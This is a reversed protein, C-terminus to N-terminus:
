GGKKGAEPKRTAAKILLDGWQAADIRALSGGLHIAQTFASYGLEDKGAGLLGAKAMLEATKGQAGVQLDLSLAQDALSVGKACAIRGTGRLRLEPSVMELGAVNIVGDFGESATIKVSDYGVESVQYTLDLVAEAAPSLSTKGSDLVNKKTGVVAGVVSGVTALTNTVTSTPAEQLSDAVDAKLIRVIGSDSTLSFYERTRRALDGLNTGKGAFTRAVSFKGEFVPDVGPQPAPLLSAADEKTTAVSAKLVYPSESGADFEVSGAINTLSHGPPGGRGGELHISGHDLTLVGGVDALMGPDTRVHDLSVAVRGTWDGWFPASDRAGSALDPALPACLLRLHELAVSGGDLRLDIWPGGSDRGTSGELSLDSHSPGTSLRVPAKFSVAGSEDVDAHVTASVLSAPDHGEVEVTADVQTSAGVTASLSGSAKRGTLWALEPAARAAALAGLDADWTSTCVVAEGGGAPRRASGELTALRRGSSSVSLPAWKASWGRASFEGSLSLDMDVARVLDKGASRVTVGAASLQSTPRLQLIGGAQRVLFEGAADGGSIAVGGMFGSLWALPLGQVSADFLDGAPDSPVLAGSAEDVSFAQVSRVTAVPREGSVSVSLSDLRISGGGAAMDFQAKLAVAGLADLGQSLIGLRAAGLAVTGVSHVRGFEADCDFTGSGALSSPPLPRDPLYPALDTDLLSLDWSGALRGTEGPLKALLGAMHRGGRSIEASYSVERAAPGSSIEASLTLGRQSSGSGDTLDANVRIRTVARSSDMAAAVSGHAAVANIPLGADALTGSADVAFSGERGAGLGGGSVVVHVHATGRGPLPTLLIEGDLDVGDLSGDVPVRLAGLIGLLARAARKAEAGETQVAAGGHGQEDATGAPGTLDLTWGKAVLSRIRVRRSLVANTMSLKAKLSPLTLSAGDAQLHLDEIDVEGFGASLSGLTGHVRSKGSLASQAAWTQFPPAIAILVIVVALTAAVALCTLLIRLVKV